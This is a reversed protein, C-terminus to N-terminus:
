LDKITLNLNYKKNLKIAFSKKVINANQTDKLAEICKDLTNWYYEQELFCYYNSIDKKSFFKSKETTIKGCNHCILKVDFSMIYYHGYQNHHGIMVGGGYRWDHECMGFFKKIIKITKM